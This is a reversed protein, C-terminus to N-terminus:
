EIDLGAVGHQAFGVARALHVALHHDVHARSVDPSEGSKDFTWIRNIGAFALWGMGPGYVEAFKHQTVRMASGPNVVRRFRVVTGAFVQEAQPSVAAVRDFERRAALGWSVPSTPLTDAPQLRAIARFPSSEDRRADPGPTRVPRIARDM